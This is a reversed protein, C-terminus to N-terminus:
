QEVSAVERGMVTSLDRYLKMDISETFFQVSGDCFGFHAGGAHYSRFNSAWHPGGQWSPTDDFLNAVDYFSDTVPSKNIPEVTSAFGGAYRFGNAHFVSPNSGGVLWGHVAIDEGVPNNVIPTTCGIGEGMPFGSAAEGMAFTNSLGDFIRKYPTESQLGFVGTHLTHPRPGFGPGFAIADSYGLSLNYSCSAYRSGSPLNLAELFAYGHREDAIDSPCRFVPEVIQVNEPSQFYWPIGSPIKEAVANQELYPLLSVWGTGDADLPTGGKNMRQGSPLRKFAAHYNQMALGIQKVNNSCSMRRAAERAAQVAPLLLGVLLGIIAIVVLLEVLTFGHKRPMMKPSRMM